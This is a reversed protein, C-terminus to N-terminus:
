EFQEEWRHVLLAMQLDTVLHIAEILMERVENLMPQASREKEVLQQGEATLARFRDIMEEFQEM